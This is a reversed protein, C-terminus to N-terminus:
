VEPLPAAGMLQRDLFQVAAIRGVDDEPEIEHVGGHLRMGCREAIGLRRYIAEYPM